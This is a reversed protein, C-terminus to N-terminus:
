WFRKCMSWRRVNFNRRGLPSIMSVYLINCAFIGRDVCVKV